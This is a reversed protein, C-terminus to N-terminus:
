YNISQKKMNGMLFSYGHPTYFLPDNFKRFIIRGLVGAKSSHPYIIDSKIRKEVTKLERYTLYDKRLKIPREFNEIKILTVRKNFFKEYDKSTQDRIGYAVYVKYNKLYYILWRLLM